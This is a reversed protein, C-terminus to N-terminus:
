WTDVEWVKCNRLYLGSLSKGAVRGGMRVRHPFVIGRCGKLATPYFHLGIYFLVLCDHLKAIVSVTSKKAVNRIVSLINKADWNYM